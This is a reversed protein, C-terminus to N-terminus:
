PQAYYGKRTKITLHPQDVKVEVRHYEDPREASPTDYTIEYQFLERQDYAVAGSRESAFKLLPTTEQPKPNMAVAKFSTITRASNNDLITFDKQQLDTVPQGSATTVVVNLHISRPNSTDGPPAQQASVAAVCLLSTGLVVLMSKDSFM